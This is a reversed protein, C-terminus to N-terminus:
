ISESDTWIKSEYYFLAKKSLGSADKPLMPRRSSGPAITVGM